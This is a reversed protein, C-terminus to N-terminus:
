RTEATVQSTLRLELRDGVQVGASDIAGVPLEYATRAGWAWSVRWPKFERVLKVVREQRDVYIVDIAFRMFWMHLSSAPEFRMGGGEALSSHGLLGKARKWSSDALEVASAIREGSEVVTLEYLLSAMM